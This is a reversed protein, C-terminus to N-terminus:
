PKLKKTPNEQEEESKKTIPLPEKHKQITQQQELYHSVNQQYFQNYQEDTYDEEDSSEEAQM